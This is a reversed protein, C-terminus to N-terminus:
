FRWSEGIARIKYDKQQLKQLLSTLFDKFREDAISNLKKQHESFSELAM